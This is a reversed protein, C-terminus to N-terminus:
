HNILLNFWFCNVYKKKLSSGFAFVLLLFLKELTSIIKPYFHFNKRLFLVFRHFQLLSLSTTSLCYNLIINDLHDLPLLPFSLNYSSLPHVIHSCHHFMAGIRKKNKNKENKYKSFCIKFMHERKLYLNNKILRLCFM